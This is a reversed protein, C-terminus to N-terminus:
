KGYKELYEKKLETELVFLKEWQPDDAVDNRCSIEGIGTNDWINHEGKWYDLIVIGPKYLKFHRYVSKPLVHVFNCPDFTWIPNGTVYSIHPREMWIQIFLELEGTPKKSNYVSKRKDKLDSRAWQHSKCYGLRSVKDMSFNPYTCNPFSCNKAMQDNHLLTFFEKNLM